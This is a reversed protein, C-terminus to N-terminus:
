NYRLFVLYGREVKKDKKLLQKEKLLHKDKLHHKEKLLKKKSTTQKKKIESRIEETELTPKAYVQSNIANENVWKEYKANINDFMQILAWIAAIIISTIMISEAVGGKKKIKKKIKKGGFVYFQPKQIYKHKKYKDVLDILLEIIINRQDHLSINPKDFIINQYISLILYGTGNTIKNLENMFGQTFDTIGKQINRNINNFPTAFGGIKKDDFFNSISKAIKYFIQQTSLADNKINNNYYRGNFNIKLDDVYKIM